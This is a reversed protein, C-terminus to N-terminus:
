SIQLKDAASQHELFHLWIWAEKQKADTLDVSELDSSQLGLVSNFDDHSQENWVLWQYLAEKSFPIPDLPYSALNVNYQALIAARIIDHQDRHALSWINWEADNKPVNLLAPLV